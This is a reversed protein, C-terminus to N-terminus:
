KKTKIILKGDSIEASEIEDLDYIYSMGNTSKMREAYLIADQLEQQLHNLWELFSLDDRGLTTGYKDIGVKSRDRFSKVVSEVVYDETPKIIEHDTVKIDEVDRIFEDMFFKADSTNSSWTKWNCDTNLEILREVISKEKPYKQYFVDYFGNNIKSWFNHGEPSSSWDFQSILDNDENFKADANKKVVKIIEKPLLKIKM